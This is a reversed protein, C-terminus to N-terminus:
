VTRGYPQVAKGPAQSPSLPKIAPQPQPQALPTTGPPQFAAEEPSEPFLEPNVKKISLAKKHTEVHAFKAKTDKAKSHIELHVNHDDERHVMVFENDSLDDNEQEAIREDITPPFLRDIEDKDMGNLRALKKLGYRRNTGPEQLALSFYQTLSQREELEKARSLIESEIQIDPDLKAVIDKKTLPQWKAGFAGVLRIVKEDIDDTFNDKYLQYWQQWFRKESWGFIKASLSFRTDVKSAILNLEGLTREQQSMAGQQIEPTATAKQASVDLSNYIFDLLQLNPRAKMMPMIADGVSQGKADMPIFKNFNFKLDGRNTIKNSDYIYMPYLDAKMAELGLNQAVARARQKDEVLDPVSTGDWTYSTPYLPRDIAEWKPTDITKFGIVKSRDNALWVKVKTIKEGVKFNTHWETVDYFSNVGLDEESDLNQSQLGQAENRAERADRLLSKSGTGTTMKLESMKFNDTRHPLEEIGQETLQIDRGFFRCSGRNKRDGNISIANPDRLFTIPDINEPLPLYIENEPDREYEHLYLISRGFFLADWIWVYDLIDKEMDEYDYEAMATLNEAVEEDGEERGSFNAMLRDIYLSALVTQQITFLTTDGVAKKKRKQNNYLKLRIEWEDKKPKQHKWALNFEADIQKALGDYDMETIDKAKQEEDIM